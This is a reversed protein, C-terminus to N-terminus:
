RRYKALEIKAITRKHVEDPGDALRLTRLHAWAWALPFDDTVGAGGHVQIARDIIRLAMEPAAVKIAAIETRAAKNGVTDMMWAAKLTLLRTQEIDIRAEAIWDQINARDALPRGFTVRDTARRCMLELAREAMGITRMCHHIRGPGLRAQSIAFGEGEGKLLDEAPVFVDEFTIEAHGERDQYGFVPLSRVITVGPADLPVVMMSQQRHPAADPDTKGMVILVRCNQHMANSTFWKRGNLVYGGRADDRVMLMEINTADSSAVAPETMAFGSRIEGDLLPKLWKEKHADSGFLTLVEMNGTDPAACNTAEPALHSRGMIEALPAYEFNTLGPGWEAHPHFLNWLGRKKAETKLEEIVAPQHHPDGSARMQEEYVEEAPYVQEDMFALLDDQYRQARDSAAFM